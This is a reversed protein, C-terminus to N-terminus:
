VRHDVVHGKGADVAREFHLPRAYFHTSNRGMLTRRSALLRQEDDAALAEDPSRPCFVPYRCATRLRRGYETKGVALLARLREIYRSPTKIHAPQEPSLALRAYGITATMANRACVLDFVLDLEDEELPLVSDYGAVVDSAPGAIDESDQAAGDCAIAVEAALSGYLLDGFDILGAFETPNNVSLLLNDTHADHLIVQHRLTQLRPMVVEGMRAFVQDVIAREDHDQIYTTLPQLRCCGEFNWLHDQMAAPHFYGRLAKDVGAVLMGLRRRILREGAGDYESLLTGDLYTVLYAIHDSGNAFNVCPADLGHRDQVIRPVPLAPATMAIHRLAGIQFDIAETTEAGNAVKLVFRDGDGAQILTNQDRESDLPSMRGELGYLELALDRLEELSHAPPNRNLFRIDPTAVM